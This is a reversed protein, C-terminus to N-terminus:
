PSDVTEDMGKPIAPHAALVVRSPVAGTAMEALAAALAEDRDKTAHQYRLAARPNAHGGRRMLDATAAGTAASWTLGSHRLDHIHLDPRGAAQRAASWMRQLNRPSLATGTSTAFLWADAEEDVWRDLHEELGLVIHAPIAVTRVGAATKPPGMTPPSNHPVSWAQDVTITGHLRDVHRRQLALVEGRRLQCWATLAGALRYREPMAAVAAEVEAVTAVPREPSRVQGAGKVQCPSRAILEDAVATNLVARLLRYADDAVTQYRGTLEQYWSRVHAPALQRLELGGLTPLIHSDLLYRYKGYTTRRLDNRGILWRNAYADFSLKGASPDVWSGRLQDTQASALWAVADAKTAFTSPAARQQGADWYRAQWRGSPLKRVSGYHRRRSPM